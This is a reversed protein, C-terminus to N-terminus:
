QRIIHPWGVAEWQGWGIGKDEAVVEVDLGTGEPLDPWWIWWTTRMLVPNMQALIKKTVADRVAISLNHSDLGTVLPIAMTTHADLHFPGLRLTGTGPDPFSGYVPGDVAPKGPGGAGPAYGDRVWAGSIGPNSDPFPPGLESFPMEAAHHLQVTGIACVSQGNAELVYATIPRPVGTVYGNWVTGYETPFDAPRAFRGLAVGAITGTQDALILYRPGRAGNFDWAWGTLRWGPRPSAIAAANVIKGQCANPEHEVTFRSNLALGPWHTWEETFITLNNKKLYAITDLTAAPTHYLIRWPEPDIVGDVVGAEGLRTIETWLRAVGVGDDQRVVVGWYMAACLATYLATRNMRRLLPWLVALMCAWFIYSPTFYRTSFAFSEAPPGDSRGMAIAGSTVALFSGYLVLAAQANSQQERRLWLMLFAGLLSITLVVGVIASCTLRLDFDTRVWPFVSIPSGLHAMWFLCIKPMQALHVPGTSKQWHYLYSGGIVVGTATVAVISRKPMRLWVALILLAPWMLIGNAMSWSSLIGLLISTWVWLDRREVTPEASKWLAYVAAAAFCYVMPFQVQFPRIFNLWQQGSYVCAAIVAALVMREATERRAQAVLLWVFLGTLGQFALACILLFWGRGRFLLHDLAFLIKPVVLRHDVHIRWFWAPSYHDSLLTIWRDWDDAAPLAVWGERAINIAGVFIWVAIAVAVMAIVPQPTVRAAVFDRSRPNSEPM